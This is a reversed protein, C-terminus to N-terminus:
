LLIAPVLPFATSFTLARHQGGGVAAVAQSCHEAIAAASAPRRLAVEEGLDDHM